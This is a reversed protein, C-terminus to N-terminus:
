VTTRVKLQRLGEAISVKPEYGLDRRAAGINFWHATTLERALFRTMPPEDRCGLMTSATELLCGTTYALWVPVTRTVPPVGETALIRNILDWLPIPEGNSLFYVKGAVTSGPALRDAASVHADAANDIYISDILKNARGIRRLRGARGRELIRPLLHNDGPGWILHPRLAVTALDPGNAALVLREAEAKTKPYAAEYHKPYPTSEDVGELDRGDFVVSPSSTYVLRRVGRKRCASLVNQTGIVNARHYDAYAGWVGAKAAVHFVVDCGAVAAETASLDAVDGQVQEVGLADLESYRRRSLSRVRDGRAVLLRVIAGGLFGGGGTVLANM